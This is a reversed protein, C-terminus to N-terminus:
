TTQKDPILSPAEIMVDRGANNKPFAIYDRISNGGGLLWCIRDMGLAIGGHPPSGYTFAKTLFGFQEQSVKESFGLIALIKKQMEQQNIRISGGGIEYGNIIMDYARARVQDPNTALLGIDSPNPATFLHHLAHYREKEQNWELLPFDTVWIPMYEDIPSLKAVKAVELRLSGLAKYVMDGHGGLLILLDGPTANGAQLWSTYDAISYWKDLSSLIKNDSKYKVYCPCAVNPFNEKLFDRLHDLQKRSYNAGGKLVISLVYSSEDFLSFGKGKASSTLDILPMGWRLDPKDTGYYAMADAYTIRPFPALEIQKVQKFIFQVLGEFITQVEQEDVFSIEADIQTFEPQRDARLDEDRFCKVIQYYRDLGAVMLLQKFIQPSQPLAYYYGPHIRSPVVFDRAGEPTSKILTPTEVEIFNQQNLYHRVLQNVQHRLLLNQQMSPRRLDLFRYQMRLEEGGDTSEEILFPPLKASNLIEITLIRVEIDGTSLAANKNIREVVEGKVQVVYERGLTRAQAFITHDTIGEELLLQTVGYRDRLDIWMLAGKNRINKIWGCLTVTMNIHNLRLEGCTHTRMMM